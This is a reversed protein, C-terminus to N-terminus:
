KLNRPQITRPNDDCFTDGLLSLLDLVGLTHSGDWSQLETHLLCVVVRCDGALGLVCRISLWFGSENMEQYSKWECTQSELSMSITAPNQETDDQFGKLM